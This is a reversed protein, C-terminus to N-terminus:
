VISTNQVVCVCGGSLLCRLKTFIDAEKKVTKSFKSFQNFFLGKKLLVVLGM